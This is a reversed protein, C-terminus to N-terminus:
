NPCHDCRHVVITILKYKSDLWKQDTLVRIYLASQFDLAASENDSGKEDNEPKEPNM